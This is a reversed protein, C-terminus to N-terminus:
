SEGPPLRALHYRRPPVPNKGRTKAKANVCGRDVVIVETAMGYSEAMEFMEWVVQHMTTTDGRIIVAAVSEGKM